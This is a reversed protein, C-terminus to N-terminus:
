QKENSLRGKLGEIVIKLDNIAQTQDKLNIIIQTNQQEQFKLQVDHINLRSELDKTTRYVSNTYNKLEKLDKENSNVQLQLGGYGVGAGLITVIMPWYRVLKDEPM